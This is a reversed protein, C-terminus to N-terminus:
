YIEFYYYLRLGPFFFLFNASMNNKEQVPRLDRSHCLRPESQREIILCFHLEKLEFWMEGIM